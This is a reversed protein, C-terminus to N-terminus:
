DFDFLELHMRGSKEWITGDEDWYVDNILTYYIKNGDTYYDYTNNYPKLKNTSDYYFYGDERLYCYNGDFEKGKQDIYDFAFWETERIYLNGNEDYLPVDYLDGYKNGKVDYFTTLPEGDIESKIYGIGILAIAIVTLIASLIFSIVSVLTLTFNGCIKAISKKDIWRCYAEFCLRALIPSFFTFIIWLIRHNDNRRKLKRWVAIIMLWTAIIRLLPIGILYLYGGSQFLTHSINNSM